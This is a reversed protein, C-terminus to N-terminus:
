EEQAPPLDASEPLLTLLLPIQAKMEGNVLSKIWYLGANEIAIHDLSFIDTYSDFEDALNFETPPAKYLCRHADHIEFHHTYAGQGLGYRSVFTIKEITHPFSAAALTDFLSFCTLERPDDVNQLVDRCLILFFNKPEM